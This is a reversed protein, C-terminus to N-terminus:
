VHPHHTFRHSKQNDRAM